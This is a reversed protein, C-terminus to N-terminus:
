AAVGSSVWPDALRMELAGERVYQEAILRYCRLRLGAHLKRLPPPNMFDSLTNSSGHDRRSDGTDRAQIRGHGTGARPSPRDLVGLGQEYRSRRRHDVAM